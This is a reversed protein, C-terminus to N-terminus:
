HMTQSIGTPAASAIFDPFAHFELPAHPTDDGVGRCANTTVYGLTLNAAARCAEGGLGADLRAMNEMGSATGRGLMGGRGCSRRLWRTANRTTRVRVTIRLFFRTLSPSRCTPSTSLLTLQDNKTFPGAYIDFRLSGSNTIIINSVSACTNNVTLAVPMVEAMLSLLSNNSLFPAEFTIRNPDLDGAVSPSTRPPAITRATTAAIVHEVWRAPMHGALLFVDREDKIADAFWAEKVMNEVTQVTTHVDNGTFDFLVDLATMVGDITINVNSSLYRGNFHPAFNGHMNLTNNRIYLEHNGIALIDYPLNRFFENSQQSFARFDWPRNSYYQAM